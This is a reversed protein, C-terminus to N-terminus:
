KKFISTEGLCGRTVGTKLNYNNITLPNVLGATLVPKLIKHGTLREATILM